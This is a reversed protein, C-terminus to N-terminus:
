NKIPIRGDSTTQNNLVRVNGFSIDTLDQVPPASGLLISKETNNYWNNDAFNAKLVVKNDGKQHLDRDHHTENISPKPYLNLFTYRNLIKELSYLTNGLLESNLVSPLISSGSAYNGLYSTVTNNGDKIYVYTHNSSDTSDMQISNTNSTDNQNSNSQNSNLQRLEASLSNKLQEIISSKAPLKVDNKFVQEDHKKANKKHFGSQEFSDEDDDEDEDDSDESQNLHNIQNHEKMLDSNSNMLRSDSLDDDHGLDNDGEDSDEINVIRSQESSGITTRKLMERLHLILNNRFLGDKFNNTSLKHDHESILSSRELKTVTPHHLEATHALHDKVHDKVHDTSSSFVNFLSKIITLNSSVNPIWAIFLFLFIFRLKM